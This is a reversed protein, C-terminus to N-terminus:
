SRGRQQSLTVVQRMKQRTGAIKTLIWINFFRGICFLNCILHITLVYYAHRCHISFFIVFCFMIMKCQTFGFWKPDSQAIQWSAFSPAAEGTNSFAILVTWCNKLLYFHHHYIIVKKVCNKTTSQPRLEDM